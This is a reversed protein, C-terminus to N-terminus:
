ILRWRHGYRQPAPLIIVQTGEKSAGYLKQQSPDLSTNACVLAYCLLHKPGMKSNSANWYCPPYLQLEKRLLASYGNTLQDSSKSM